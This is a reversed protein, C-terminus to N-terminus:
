IRQQDISHATHVENANADYLKNRGANRASNWQARPAAASGNERAIIRRPAICGTAPARASRQPVRGTIRAPIWHTREAEEGHPHGLAEPLHGEAKPDQDAGRGTGTAQQEPRQQDRLPKRARPAGRRHIRLGGRRRGWGRERGLQEDEHRLISPAGRRHEQRQHEQRNRERQGPRRGPGTRRPPAPARPRAAGGRPRPCSTRSSRRRPGSRLRMSARTAQPRLKKRDGLQRRGRRGRPSARGPRSPPPGCPKAEVSPASAPPRAAMAPAADRREHRRVHQAAKPRQGQRQRPHRRRPKVGGHGERSARDEGRHGDVGHSTGARRGWRAPRM